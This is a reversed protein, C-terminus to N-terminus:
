AGPTGWDARPPSFIDLLVSDELARAGHFENAGLHVMEGARVVVPKGEITFEMIGSLVVSFQENEHRHPPTVSGRTFAVRALTMQEGNVFRRLVSGDAPMAEEAVTEWDYHKM